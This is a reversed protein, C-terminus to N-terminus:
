QLIKPWKQCIKFNYKRHFPPRAATKILLFTVQAWVSFLGRLVSHHDQRFKHHVRYSTSSIFNKPLVNNDNVKWEYYLYWFFYRALILRLSMMGFFLKKVFLWLFIYRDHWKKNTVIGCMAVWVFLSEIEWEREWMVDCVCECVCVCLCVCM